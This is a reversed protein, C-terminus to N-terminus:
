KPGGGARKGRVNRAVKLLESSLTLQGEEAAELNVEFRVNNGSLVFQIIGDHDLFGAVDSVTLVGAKNLASIAKRSHSEGSEGIFLVNCGAAEELGRVHRATVPKSNIKEGRVTADLVSGFPDEGLVCISFIDPSKTVRATNSSASAAPWTVFKGFNLLYAAEIQYETASPQAFTDTRLAALGFTLVFFAARIALRLRNQGRRIM